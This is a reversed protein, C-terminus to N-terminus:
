TAAAADSDSAPATLKERTLFYIGSSLLFPFWLFGGIMYVYFATSPPPWGMNFKGNALWLGDFFEIVVGQILLFGLFQHKRYKRSFYISLLIILGYAANRTGIWKAPLLAGYLDAGTGWNPQRWQEGWFNIGDFCWRYAFYLKMM